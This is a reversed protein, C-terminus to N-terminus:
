ESVYERHWFVGANEMKIKCLSLFLSVFGILTLEVTGTEKRSVYDNTGNTIKEKLFDFFTNM